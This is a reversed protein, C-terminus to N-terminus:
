RDPTMFFGAAGFTRPNQCNRLSPLRRRVTTASPRSPAAKRPKRVARTRTRIRRNNSFSPIGATKTANSIIPRRKAACIATLANNTWTINVRRTIQINIQSTLWLHIGKNPDYLCTRGPKALVLQCRVKTPRARANKRNPERKVQFSFVLGAPFPPKYNRAWGADAKAFNSQGNRGFAPQLNMESRELKVPVPWPMSRLNSLFGAQRVSIRACLVWENDFERVGSLPTASFSPMPQYSLRYLLPRKLRQDRTRTGALGGDISVRM